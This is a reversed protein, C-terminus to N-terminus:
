NIDDKKRKTFTTVDIFGAAQLTKKADELNGALTDVVHSDSGITIITGGLKRYRKVLPLSPFSHGKSRYGSTNIEIGKGKNILTLFIEDIIDAYKEHDVSRDDYPGYREIYDLHGLVNFCDFMKVCTLTEEFFEKHAQEKTKQAFFEGYFFETHSIVHISGIVFDFPYSAIFQNIEDYHDKDLGIEVGWKITIKDQYREKLSQISLHYREIDLDFSDIPYEFDQHDTFCIEDLGLAIAKEIYPIIEQESDGSFHTHIHYDINRM